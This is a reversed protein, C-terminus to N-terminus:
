AHSPVRHTRREGKSQGIANWLREGVPTLAWVNPGGRGPAVDGNRILGLRELRSLLKSMQGQDDIGSSRGIQRNSSGPDNAIAMLVRVTRYTLRMNIGCLPDISGERAESRRVPVVRRLERRAVAPGLYPLVIMSTLPGVLELLQAHEDDLMRAHLVALVGGVVGEATLLSPGDGREVEARGEDVARIALTLVRARHALAPPGAGLSEVILLRGIGRECDLFELLGAIASRIRVLWSGTQEYAPIVLDAIRAVGDDFAALFCDERDEFLEYFTRRSVGSRGVIHAVTVNAVGHECVVDVMAALLRARQIDRVERHGDSYERGPESEGPRADRLGPEVTPGRQKAHM